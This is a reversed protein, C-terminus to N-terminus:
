RSSLGSLSVETDSSLWRLLVHQRPILRARRRGITSPRVKEVDVAGKNVDRGRRRRHSHAGFQRHQELAQSGGGTTSDREDGASREGLDVSEKRPQRQGAGALVAHFPAVM